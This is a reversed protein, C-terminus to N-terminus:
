DAFQKMMIPSRLIQWIFKPWMTWSGASREVQSLMNDLETRDYVAGALVVAEIDRV